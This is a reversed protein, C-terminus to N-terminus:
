QQPAATDVGSATTDVDLISGLANGLGGVVQGLGGLLGPRPEVIVTTPRPQYIPYPEIVPYPAVVPYPYPYGPIHTLKSSFLCTLSVYRITRSPSRRGCLRSRSRHRFAHQNNYLNTRSSRLQSTKITFSHSSQSILTSTIPLLLPKICWPRQVDRYM